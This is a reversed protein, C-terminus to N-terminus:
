ERQRGRQAEKISIVSSLVGYITRAAVIAAVAKLDNSFITITAMLSTMDVATDVVLDVGNTMYTMYSAAEPEIGDEIRRQQRDATLPFAIQGAAIILSGKGWYDKRQKFATRGVMDKTITTINSVIEASM